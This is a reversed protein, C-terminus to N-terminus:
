LVEEQTIKEPKFERKWELHQKLFAETAELDGQRAISFRKLTIELDAKGLTEVIEDVLEQNEKLKAICDM